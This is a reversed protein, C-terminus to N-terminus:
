RSSGENAAKSAEADHEPFALVPQDRFFLSRVLRVGQEDDVNLGRFGHEQISELYSAAKIKQQDNPIASWSSRKITAFLVGDKEYASTVEFPGKIASPDVPQSWDMTKYFHFVGVALMTTVAAAILYRQRRIAWRGVRRAKRKVAAKFAGKAYNINEDSLAVAGPILSNTFDSLESYQHLLFHATEGLAHAINPNLTQEKENANVKRHVPSHIEAVLKSNAKFIARIQELYEYHKGDISRLRNVEDKLKLTLAVMNLIAVADEDQSHSALIKLATSDFNELFRKVEGMAIPDQQDNNHYKVIQERYHSLDHINGWPGSTNSPAEMPSVKQYIDTFVRKHKALSSVLRERIMVCTQKLMKRNSAMADAQIKQVSEICTDGEFTVMRTIKEQLPNDIVINRSALERIQADEMEVKVHLAIAFQFMKITENDNIELQEALGPTNLIIHKERVTLGHIIQWIKLRDEDKPPTKEEIIEQALQLYDEMPKSVFDENPTDAVKEEQVQTSQASSYKEVYKNIEASAESSLDKFEIGALLIDQGGFDKGQSVTRVVASVQLTQDGFPLSFRLSLTTDKELSAGAAPMEVLMGTASINRAFSLPTGKGTSEVMITVPVRRHQRIYDQPSKKNDNNSEM